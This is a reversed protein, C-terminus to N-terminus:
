VDFKMQSISKCADPFAGVLKRITNKFIFKQYFNANFTTFSTFGDNTTAYTGSWIYKIIKVTTHKLDNRHTDTYERKKKKWQM